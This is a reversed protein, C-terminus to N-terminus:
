DIDGAHSQGSLLTRRARSADFKLCHSLSTPRFDLEKGRMSLATTLVDLFTEPVRLQLAYRVFRGLSGNMTRDVGMTIWPYLASEFIYIPGLM